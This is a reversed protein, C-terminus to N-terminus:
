KQQELIFQCAKFVAEYETDAHFTQDYKPYSFNNQAICYASTFTGKPIYASQLIFDHNNFAWEKCKHALQYLNDGVPKYGIHDGNSNLIDYEAMIVQDSYPVGHLIKFDIFKEKDNEPYICLFLEKSIM